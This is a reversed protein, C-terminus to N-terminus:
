YGVISETNIGRGKLYTVLVVLIQAKMSVDNIAKYLKAIDQFAKEKMQESFERIFNEAIESTPREMVSKEERGLLYDTSVCFYDAVKMVNEVKPSSNNWKMVSGNGFGCDKELRYITIGRNECLMRVRECISM